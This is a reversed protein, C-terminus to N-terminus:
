CSKLLAFYYEMLQRLLSNDTRYRVDDIQNVPLILPSTGTLFAAEYKEVGTCAIREEVLSFRHEKCIDFVRKRSTGPLVYNVPCTYLTQNKIFFVNSRSGETIFGERDVLLIEHVKNEQILRNTLSRLDPNIYKIGPNERVAQYTMTKVGKRYDEETPYSHPIQFIYEDTHETTFHLVYKLNGETIKELAIFHELKLPLNLNKARIGINSNKLSNDLRLLNDNLFIPKGKFVRIVEYISWGTEFIKESFHTEPIPENNLLIMTDLISM